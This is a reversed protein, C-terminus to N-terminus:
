DQCWGLPTACSCFSLGVAQTMSRVGDSRLRAPAGEDSHTESGQCRGVTRHRIDMRVYTGDVYVVCVHVYIEVYVVCMYTYIYTYVRPIRVVYLFM